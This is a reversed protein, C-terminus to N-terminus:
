GNKLEGIYSKINNLNVEAISLYQKGAKTGWQTEARIMCLEVNFMHKSILRFLKDRNRGRTLLKFPNKM